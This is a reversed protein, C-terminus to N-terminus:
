EKWTEYVKEIVEPDVEENFKRAWFCYSRQIEEWDEMRWTHPSAGEPRTRDILRMHGYADKARFIQKRFPSNVLLTALFMEDSCSTFRTFKRIWARKSIVYEACPQTISFWQQCKALTLKNTKLRDVKLIKQIGESLLDLGKALYRSYSRVPYFFYFRKLGSLGSETNRFALFQTDPHGDFFKHVESNTKIQLDNGSLLHLFAYETGSNFAAELLRLECEVISSDGWHVSMRRVFTVRSKKCINEFYNQDFNRSKRDIHVYLDNREHDLQRMLKELIGFQTHAMILYAYKHTSSM